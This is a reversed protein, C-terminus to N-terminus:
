NMEKEKEYTKTISYDSLKVSHRLESNYKRFLCTALVHRTDLSFCDHRRRKWAQAALDRKRRM